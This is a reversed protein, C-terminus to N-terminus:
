KHPSDKLLLLQVQGQVRMRGAELGAQEGTGWFLDLRQAGQIASGSDQVTVLRNVPTWRPLDKEVVPRATQLWLISGPPYVRQDAAVSRGPTLGRNLSGVAPGPDKWDFFIYSANQYLIQQREGPHSNLYDRISGMNVQALEMRGSTVLYRGISTYPHGNRGAYQVGRLSGDELMIIGSGQVHLTFVDFSNGLWVLEQGKLLQRTEIEQRTWYPLLHGRVLRGGQVKKPSTHAVVLDAPLRYLPHTYPPHPQLSGRFVPQYYGTILPQKESSEALSLWVFDQQLRAQFVAPNEFRQALNSLHRASDILRSVPVILQGFRYNTTVPRTQLYSLSQELVKILSQRDLDDCVPQKTQAQLTWAGFTLASCLLFSLLFFRGM